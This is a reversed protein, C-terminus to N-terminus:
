EVTMDILNRLLRLVFISSTLKGCFRSWFPQELVVEVFLQVVGPRGKLRYWSWCILRSRNRLSLACSKTVANQFFSSLVDRYQTFYDILDIIYVIFFLPGLVSAQAVEHSIPLSAALISMSLARLWILDQQNMLIEEYERIWSMM